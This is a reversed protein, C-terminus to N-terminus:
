PVADYTRVKSTGASQRVRATRTSNSATKWVVVTQILPWIAPSAPALAVGREREVDCMQEVPSFCVGDGNTHVIREIFM